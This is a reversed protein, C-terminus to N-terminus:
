IPNISGAGSTNFRTSVPNGDYRISGVGSVSADLMETAYVKASGAGSISVDTERTQLKLCNLSAVGSIRVNHKHANGSIKVSGAGSINTRLTNTNVQLDMDGAGSITIHMNESQITHESSLSTAGSLSLENLYTVTIYAEMRSPSYSNNGKMGLKLTNNEIEAMVYEQLNEDTVIRVMPNDGEVLYVKFMGSVELADFDSLQKEVSVVNKDGRISNVDLDCGTIFLGSLILLSILIWNNTTTKM